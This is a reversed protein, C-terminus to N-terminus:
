VYLVGMLDDPSLHNWHLFSKGQSLHFTLDFTLLSKGVGPLSWGLGICENSFFPYM